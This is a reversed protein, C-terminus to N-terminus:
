LGEYEAHVQTRILDKPLNWDKPMVNMSWRIVNNTNLMLFEDFGNTADGTPTGIILVVRDLNILQMLTKFHKGCSGGPEEFVVHDFAPLSGVVGITQYNLDIRHILEAYTYVDKAKMDELKNPVIRICTTKALPWDSMYSQQILRAYKSKGSMRAAAIIQM